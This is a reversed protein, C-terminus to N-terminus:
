RSGDAGARIRASGFICVRFHNETHSKLEGELQNIRARMMKLRQTLRKRRPSLMDLYKSM